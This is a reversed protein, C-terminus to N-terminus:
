INKLSAITGEPDSSSFIANGVVMIDVGATKLAQLNGMGVGGDVEIKARSNKKLILEKLRSIKSYSNEIFKQGGFGPNVTMILVLDLDSIIEELVGVPTHPNLAVGCQMGCQQIQ